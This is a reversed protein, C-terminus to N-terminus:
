IIWLNKVGPTSIHVQPMSPFSSTGKDPMSRLPNQTCVSSFQKNLVKAKDSTYSFTDGQGLLPAVGASDKRMNKIFSWLKNQKTKRENNNDEESYDLINEIYAVALIATENRKTFQASTKEFDDCM